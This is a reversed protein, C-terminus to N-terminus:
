QVYEQWLVEAFGGKDMGAANAEETDIHTELVLGAGPRCVVEIILPRAGETLKLKIRQGKKILHFDADEESVHLHAQAVICGEPLHIKTAYLGTYGLEAKAPGELTIPASGALEGSNRLPAQVGLQRAETFTVEVQTQPRYPGLVRVREIKGKPGVITLTEQAAFEGPQMLNCKKHLEYGEGFLEEADKRCLHIHRASINVPVKIFM